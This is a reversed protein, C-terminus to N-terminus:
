SNLIEAAARQGSEVAGEMYGQFVASHEGAFHLRGEQQSLNAWQATVAGPPFFAYGGQSYPENLWAITRSSILLDSSGPFLLEVQALVAAIRNEESMKSYVDAPKGGTYVTLMGGQGLQGGATLWICNMPLDTLLLGTWGAEQWFPQEYELLVKTVPGLRLQALSNQHPASIAPEIDIESMPGPPIAMVVRDAELFLEQGDIEYHVLVSDNSQQVATVRANLRVDPLEAAMAFALQDNGGLIHYTRGDEAEM